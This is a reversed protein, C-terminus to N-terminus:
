SSVFVSSQCECRWPPKSCKNLKTGRKRQGGWTAAPKKTSGHCLRTRRSRRSRKGPARCCPRLEDRRAPARTGQKMQKCARLQNHCVSACYSMTNSWPAESLPLTISRVKRAQAARLQLQLCGVDSIICDSAARGSRRKIHGCSKDLRGLEWTKRDCKFKAQTRKRRIAPARPTSERVQWLIVPFLSAPDSPARHIRRGCPRTGRLGRVPISGHYKSSTSTPAVRAVRSLRVHVLPSKCREAHVNNRPCPLSTSRQTPM